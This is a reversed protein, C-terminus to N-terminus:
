LPLFIVAENVLVAFISSSATSPASLKLACSAPLARRLSGYHNTSIATFSSKAFVRTSHALRRHDTLLKTAFTRSVEASMPTASWTFTLLEFRKKLSKASLTLVSISWAPFHISDEGSMSYAPAKHIIRALTSRSPSSNSRFAAQHGANIKVRASLISSAKEASLSASVVFTPDPLGALVDSSTVILRSPAVTFSICKQNEERQQKTKTKDMSRTQDRSSYIISYFTTLKSQECKALLTSHLTKFHTRRPRCQRRKCQLRVM